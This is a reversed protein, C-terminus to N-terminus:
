KLANVIINVNARVTGLYSEEETGLEGLSDSFLEGSLKVATGRRHCGEVVAEIYKPPVSQETFVAPIKLEIISDVMNTVDRLGFEATTTIGQLGKIRFDYARAFYSFADHSTFLIKRELPILNLREQTWAHIQELSDRYVEFQANVYDVKEPIAEALANAINKVSKTWLLPDFWVHPDTASDYKIYSTAEFGESISSIIKESKLKELIDTMKGELELGNYLIIDASRLLKLDDLTPKFYHPDIGPKMLPIVEVNEPALNRTADWIMTTTCVVRFAKDSKASEQESCSSLAVGFLSILFIFKFKM